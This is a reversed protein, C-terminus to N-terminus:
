IKLSPVRWISSCKKKYAVESRDLEKRLLFLDKFITFYGLSLLPKLNEKLESLQQRIAELDSANRLAFKRRRLEYLVNRIKLESMKFTQHDLADAKKAISREMKDILNLYTDKMEPLMSQVAEQYRREQSPIGLFVRVNEIFRKLFHDRPWPFCAAEGYPINLSLSFVFFFVFFKLKGMTLLLM